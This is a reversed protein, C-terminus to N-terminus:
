IWVKEIDDFAGRYIHFNFFRSDYRLKNIVVDKEQPKMWSWKSVGKLYCDYVKEQKKTDSLVSSLIIDYIHPDSTAGVEKLMVGLNNYNEENYRQYISYDTKTFVYDCFVKTVELDLHYEYNLYQLKYIKLYAKQLDWASKSCKWWYEKRIKPTITLKKLVKHIEKKIEDIAQFGEDDNDWNTSEIIDAVVEYLKHRGATFEFKIDNYGGMVCEIGRHNHKTIVSLIAIENDLSQIKNREVFKLMKTNFYTDNVDDTVLREKKLGELFEKTMAKANEGAVVKNDANAPISNKSMTKILKKKQKERQFTKVILCLM